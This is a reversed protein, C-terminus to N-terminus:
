RDLDRAAYARYDLRLLTGDASRATLVGPGPAAITAPDLGLRVARAALAERLQRELAAVDLSRRQVTDEDRVQTM